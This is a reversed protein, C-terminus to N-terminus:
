ESIIKKYISLTQSVNTDSNHRKEASKIANESIERCLNDNQFLENIYMKLLTTEEFQYLMGNKRHSVMQPIGGVYASITPVGLIQAEGLSNPSNEISSPCIFIRAKLFENIIQEETLYGLFRINPELEYKIILKKIIKGYNSIKLNSFKSCSKLIDPGAIRIQVNKYSNKLKGIAELVQHLGKIPYAAQSLFISENNADELNWKKSIFFNRRLIEDCHYYKAKPNMSLSHSKDWDTRGIFNEVKKFYEIETEGRKIFKRKGQILTDFKLIDRLTINRLITNLSIGGYYYNSYVHIIGQISVVSKNKPFSNIYALGFTFETGHIHTIDPKINYKETLILWKEELKSDYFHGEGSHEISLFNIGEINSLYFEEKGCTAVTLNVGKKILNEALGSMWGGVVPSPLGLHKALSPLMINTIWLVEIHKM